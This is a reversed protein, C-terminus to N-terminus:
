RAAKALPESILLRYAEALHRIEDFRRMALLQLLRALPEICWTVLGILLRSGLGGHKRFYAQRSRLSYFLRRGRVQDSTGGGKHFAQAESLYLSTWGLQRARYAFDVEEFYVFFREDFGGLHEFLERRTLFFAGIVQDVVRSDQHPWERMTHGVSPWVRDLALAASVFHSVRPFRACSRAISGQGDVLQIGVIGTREHAPEALAQLPLRLSDAHLRTDPNLFLLLESGHRELAIAAGQNCARAFGANDTNRLLEVRAGECSLHDASGDASGNDVVVVCDLRAGSPLRAAAEPISALCERLQERSNWNVIIIALSRPPTRAVSKLATNM